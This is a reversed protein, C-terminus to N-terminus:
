LQALTDVLAPLLLQSTLEVLELPLDILSLFAQRNKTDALVQPNVSHLKQVLSDHHVEFSDLKDEIELLTARMIKPDLLAVRKALGDQASGYAALLPHLEHPALVILRTNQNQVLEALQMKYTYLIYAARFLAGESSRLVVAIEGVQLYAGKTRGDKIFNDSDGTYDDIFNHVQAAITSELIVDAEDNFTPMSVSNWEAQWTKYAEKIAHAVRKDVPHPGSIPQSLLQKAERMAQMHLKPQVGDHQGSAQYISETLSAITHEAYDDVLCVASLKKGQLKYIYSLYKYAASTIDHKASGLQYPSIVFCKDVLAVMSLEANNEPAQIWHEASITAKSIFEDSLQFNIYGGIAEIRAHKLGTTSRLRTNSQLAKAITEAVEQASLELTNALEFCPVAYDIYDLSGIKISRQQRVARPTWEMKYTKDVVKTIASRIASQPFHFLERGYLTGTRPKQTKQTKPNLTRQPAIKMIEKTVKYYV